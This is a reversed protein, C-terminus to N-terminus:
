CNCHSLLQLYMCASTVGFLSVLEEEDRGSGQLPLHLPETIAPTCQSLLKM